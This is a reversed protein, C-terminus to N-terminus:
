QNKKALDRSSLGYESLRYQITRVSVDLMEAARSTSGEVAELTKLIAYREIEAMTAGPIQLSGDLM